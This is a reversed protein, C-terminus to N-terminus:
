LLYDKNQSSWNHFSAIDHNKSARKFMPSGNGLYFVRHIHDAYQRRLMRTKREMELKKIIKNIIYDKQYQKLKEDKRIKDIKDIVEKIDKM